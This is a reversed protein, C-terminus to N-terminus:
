RENNSGKGEDAHWRPKSEDRIPPNVRSCGLETTRREDRSQERDGREIQKAIHTDDVAGPQSRWLNRDGADGDKESGAYQSSKGDYHHHKPTMWAHQGRSAHGTRQGHRLLFPRRMFGKAFSRAM